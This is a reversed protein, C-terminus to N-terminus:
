RRESVAVVIEGRTHLGVAWSTAPHAREETAHSRDPISGCEAVRTPGHPKGAFRGPGSRQTTAGLEGLEPFVDPARLLRPRGCGRRSAGRSRRSGRGIFAQAIRVGSHFTGRAFSVVCFGTEGLRWRNRLARLPGEGLEICLAIAERLATLCQLQTQEVDFAFHIRHSRAECGILLRVAGRLFPRCQGHACEILRAFRAGAARDRVSFCRRLSLNDDFPLKAERGLARRVCFPKLHQRSLQGREGGGILRERRALGRGLGIESRLALRKSLDFGTKGFTVFAHPRRAVRHDLSLMREVGIPAVRLRCRRFQMVCLEFM